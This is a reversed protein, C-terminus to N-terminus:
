LIKSLNVVGSFISVCSKHQRMIKESPPSFCKQPTKQPSYFPTFVGLTIAFSGFPVKFQFRSFAGFCVNKIWPSTGWKGEGETSVFHPCNPTEYQNLSKIFESSFIQLPMVSCTMELNFIYCSVM